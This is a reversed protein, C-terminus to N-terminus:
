DEWTDPDHVSSYRALLGDKEPYHYVWTDAYEDKRRRVGEIDIAERLESVDFGDASCKNRIEKIPKPGDKLADRLWTITDRIKNLEAPSKQAMVLREAPMDIEGEWKIKAADSGEVSEMRYALSPAPQSANQKVPVLVRQEREEDDPNRAAIFSFRAAGIIGISGQGARMPDVDRSKVLHRAMLVAMRHKEAIAKLKSLVVRVSTDTNTDIESGFYLMIPDMVLLKPQSGQLVMDLMDLDRPFSLPYSPGFEDAVTDLLIVRNVDAGANDLRPRVTQGPDDEGSLIVVDAPPRRQSEGPLPEGTTIKAAIDVAVTSKGQGPDGDILTIMGEAMRGQWVWRIPEPDIAAITRARVYLEQVEDM